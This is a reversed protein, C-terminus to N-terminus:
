TLVKAPWDSAEDKKNEEIQVEPELDVGLKNVMAASRNCIERGKEPTPGKEL